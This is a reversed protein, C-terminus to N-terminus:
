VSYDLRESNRKHLIKDIEKILDDTTTINTNVAISDNGYPQYKDTNTVSFLGVTPAKSASALHMIGSDAGIFIETNAILAGIERIDKSYFSPAKFGIQSVNEIPLVELINYVGAYEAKIRDYTEAWWAESYCKDRTAFTYLSITKKEISVIGDLVRKGNALEDIGLKIDLLPIPRDPLNLGLQNLYKRFNYVPFKAIHNYDTYEKQLEEDLDNFFKFRANTFQTSLRGSSSNKDVNIVIDYHYKRLSIWVKIYAILEKFPKKPLKITRDVNKYNEFLIPALGGRVFLDIKCNPFLESVEEVLPTILLQNGLRSNPRCILVRRITESNWDIKRSIDSRGINKTLSHMISRRIGNVRSSFSM